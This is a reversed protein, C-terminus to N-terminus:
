TKLTYKKRSEAKRSVPKRSVPMRSVKGGYGLRPTIPTAIMRLKQPKTLDTVVPNYGLYLARTRRTEM